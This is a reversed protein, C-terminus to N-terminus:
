SRPPKWARANRWLRASGAAVTPQATPTAFSRWLWASASVRCSSPITSAINRRGYRACTLRPILCLKLTAELHALSAELGAIQKRQHHILGAVEARKAMLRTVVHPDVM